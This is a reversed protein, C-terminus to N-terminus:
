IHILSLQPGSQPRVRAGFYRSRTLSRLRSEESRDQQGSLTPAAPPPDSQRQHGGDFPPADPNPWTSVARVESVARPGEHSHPGEPPLLPPGWYGPPRDPAARRPQTAALLPRLVTPCSSGHHQALRLAAAALQAVMRQGSRLRRERRHWAAERPRSRRAGEEQGVPWWPPPRLLHAAASM